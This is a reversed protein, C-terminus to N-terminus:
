KLKQYSIKHAIKYKSFEAHFRKRDNFAEPRTEFERVPRVHRITESDILGIRYRCFSKMLTVYGWGWYNYDERMLEWFKPYKDAKFILIFLEAMDALRGIKNNKTLMINWSFFSDRTLTPSAVDLNNREMIEFVNQHNFELIDLDDMALFVYDYKSTLEPTIYKKFFYYIIGEEKIIKCTKFIEEDFNTDDYSFIIYDFNSTGFKLLIKELYKKGERGVPAAYLCRYKKEQIRSLLGQNIRKHRINFIIDRYLYIFFIYSTKIELYIKRIIQKLIYFM